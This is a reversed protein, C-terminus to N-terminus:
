QCADRQTQRASSISDDLQKLTDRRLKTGEDLCNEYIKRADLLMGEQARAAACIGKANQIRINWTDTLKKAMAADDCEAHAIVPACVMWIMAAVLKPRM